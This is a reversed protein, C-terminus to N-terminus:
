ARAVRRVLALYTAVFEDLSDGEDIQAPHAVLRAAMATGAVRDPDAAVAELERRMASRRRREVDDLPRDRARRDADPM